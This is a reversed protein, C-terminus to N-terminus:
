KVKWGQKEAGILWDNIEKNTQSKIRRKLAKRHKLLQKLYEVNKTSFTWDNVFWWRQVNIPSLGVFYDILFYIEWKILNLFKM